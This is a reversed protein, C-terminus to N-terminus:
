PRYGARSNTINAQPGTGEPKSQVLRGEQHMQAAAMLLFKPDPPQTMASPPAAQPVRSFPVVPM